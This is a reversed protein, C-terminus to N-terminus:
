GLLVNWREWEITGGNPPRERLATLIQQKFNPHIVLPWLRFWEYQDLQALAANWDTVWPREPGRTRAFDRRDDEGLLDLLAAENTEVRFQWSQGSLTGFLTITGGEAAVELIVQKLESSTM